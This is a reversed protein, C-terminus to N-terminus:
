KGALGAAVAAVVAVNSISKYGLGWLVLSGIGLLVSPRPLRSVFDTEDAADASLYQLHKVGVAGPPGYELKM